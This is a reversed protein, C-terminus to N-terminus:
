RYSSVIIQLWVADGIKLFYGFCPNHLLLIQICCKLIYLNGPQANTHANALAAWWQKMEQKTNFLIEYMDAKAPPVIILLIASSRGKERIVM